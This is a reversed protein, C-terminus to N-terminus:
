ASAGCEQWVACVDVSQAVRWLARVVKSVFHRAAESDERDPDLLVAFGAFRAAMDATWDTREGTTPSTAAIGAEIYALAKLEGPAIVIQVGRQLAQAEPLPFLAAGGRVKWGGKKQGPRAPDRHLKVGILSHAGLHSVIPM